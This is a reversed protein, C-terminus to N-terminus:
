FRLNLGLSFGRLLGGAYCHPGEGSLLTTATADFATLQTADHCDTTIGRGGAGLDYHADPHNATMAWDAYISFHRDIAHRYMITYMNAANDPNFGGPTNHQGTDGRTANAHAWGFNFSDRNANLGQTVALWYGSRARENQFDLASPIYRALDEYIASVTTTKTPAFQLGFKTGQEDGVDLPSLAPDGVDSVRNVKKHLEYAASVYLGRSQYALSTSYAAGFSGDNCAPSLAGSGPLNGGACSPEGAPINSNDSARNQGPSVLANFQFGRIAPSEYWLSHDLRTAFEVRNDGGSNGMIVSYDGIEGSFPNMRATSYPISYAASVKHAGRVGIYSLNTSIAGLWGMNGVPSDGSSAYFPQLGKTTVDYSLDLNGYLTVAESGGILFTVNPGPVTQLFPPPAAPVGG